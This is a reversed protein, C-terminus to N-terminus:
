KQSIGVHYKCIMYTFFDPTFQFVKDYIQDSNPYNNKKQKEKRFHSSMQFWATEMYM